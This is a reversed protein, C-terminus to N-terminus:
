LKNRKIFLFHGGHWPKRHCKSFVCETILSNGQEGDFSVVLDCESTAAALASSSFLVVEFNRRYKRWIHYDATFKLFRECSNTFSYFINAM